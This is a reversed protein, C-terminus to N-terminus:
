FELLAVHRYFFCRKIKLEPNLRTESIESVSCMKSEHRSSCSSLLMRRRGRWRVVLEGGDWSRIGIRKAKWGVVPLIVPM